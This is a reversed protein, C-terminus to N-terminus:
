LECFKEIRKILSRHYKDITERNMSQEDIFREFNSEIRDPKRVTCFFYVDDDQLHEMYRDMTFIVRNGKFGWVANEKRAEILSKLREDYKTVTNIQEIEPPNNWACGPFSQMLDRDVRVLSEDSYYKKFYKRDERQPRTMPVGQDYICKALFSTASHPAGTVIYVKSV